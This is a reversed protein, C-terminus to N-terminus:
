CSSILSNQGVRELLNCASGLLRGKSPKSKKEAQQEQEQELKRGKVHHSPPFLVKDIGQVSIRGDIYIDHDYLHASEEGEGFLVTGDAEQTVVKHPIHLTDYKLKGFRRVATYFSEETQYEPIMHYYIIHELESLQDTTLKGMAEDSPALVTLRYGESVLKAMESAMSTLNVLIDAMENYGGYQVLTHIFDKVQSEGDFWYHGSSPGPAPAPALSPGPAAAYEFYISPLSGSSLGILSTKKRHHSSDVAPAGEPKVAELVVRGNRWQNFDDQVSKPVLLRDIGHIVGDPRVVANPHTVTGLDVKMVKKKIDGNVWFRLEENWNLAKHTANTWEEAVMRRPVVHFQLLKQLSKLNGPEHLFKRFQPDLNKELFANSPAFITINSSGVVEELPQLLLAKEVMEALETYDYHADLLAVLVSNSSIVPGSSSVSNQHVGVYKEPEAGMAVANFLVMVVYFALVGHDM